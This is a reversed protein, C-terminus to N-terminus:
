IKAKRLIGSLGLSQLQKVLMNISDKETRGVGEVYNTLYDPNGLIENIDETIFAKWCAPIHCNLNRNYMEPKYETWYEIIM